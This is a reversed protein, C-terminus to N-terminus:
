AARWLMEDVRRRLWEVDTEPQAKPPADPEGFENYYITTAAKWESPKWECSTDTSLTALVNGYGISINNSYDDM